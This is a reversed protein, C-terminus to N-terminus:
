FCTMVQQIDDATNYIHPSLRIGSARQDFHVQAQRLRQRQAEDTALVLTGSRLEAQAPSIVNEAPRSDILMQLLAQNHARINDQGLALCHQIAAAAMVYPAVNPTGGWFRRADDAYDFDHIDFAFPNQHSFWGVDQPQMRTMWHDALWLYGAGPGGCLWKVCSGILADCGWAEVDVPLLGISQAVDVVSFVGRQQAIQCIDAVPLQRGSNSQVHSILVLAVDENLAQDWLQPDQSQAGGPLFDLQMGKAQALVFGLSPFDDECLVIRKRAPNQPLAFLLKSLASSVNSQPCINPAKAQILQALQKRFEDIAALWQPWTNNSAQAWPQVFHQNLAQQAAVPLCGISHAMLYIGEPLLYDQAKM